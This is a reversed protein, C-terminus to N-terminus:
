PMYGGSRRWLIGWDRRGGNEKMDEEIQPALEEYDNTWLWTCLVAALLAATGPLLVASLLSEM